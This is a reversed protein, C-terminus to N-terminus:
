ESAFTPTSLLGCCEEEAYGLEELVFIRGQALHNVQDDLLESAGSVIDDHDGRGDHLVGGDAAIDYVAWIGDAGEAADDVGGGYL